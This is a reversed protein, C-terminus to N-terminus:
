PLIAKLLRGVLEPDRYTIEQTGIMLSIEGSALDRIHAILPGNLVTTSLSDEMEAFDPSEITALGPLTVLTGLIAAGATTKGLFRRRTLERM